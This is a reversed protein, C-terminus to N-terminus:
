SDSGRLRAVRWLEFTRWAASAILRGKLDEPLDDSEFWDLCARLVAARDLTEREGALPEAVLRQAVWSAAADFSRYGTVTVTM